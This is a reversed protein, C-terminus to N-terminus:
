IPPSGIFTFYSTSRVVELGGGFKARRFTEPPPVDELGTAALLKCLAGIVQKVEVSM